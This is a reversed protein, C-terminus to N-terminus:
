GGLNKTSIYVKNFSESAITSFDGHENKILYDGLRVYISKKITTLDGDTTHKYFRIYLAGPMYGDCQSLHECLCNQRCLLRISDLNDGTWKVAAVQQKKVPVYYTICDDM